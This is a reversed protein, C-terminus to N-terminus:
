SDSNSCLFPIFLEKNKRNAEAIACFFYKLELCENTRVVTYVCRSGWYIRISLHIYCILPSFIRFCFLLYVGLIKNPTEMLKLPHLDLEDRFPNLFKIFFNMITCFDSLCHNEASNTLDFEMGM